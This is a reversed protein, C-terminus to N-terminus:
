KPGSLPTAPPWGAASQFGLRPRMARASHVPLRLPRLKRKEPVEAWIV